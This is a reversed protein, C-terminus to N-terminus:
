AALGLQVELVAIPTVLCWLDKEEGTGFTLGEQTEEPNPKPRM